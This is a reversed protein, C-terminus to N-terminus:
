EDVDRDIPLLSGADAQDDFDALRPLSGPGIPERVCQYAEVIGNGTGM